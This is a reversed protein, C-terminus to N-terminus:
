LSHSRDALRAMVYSHSEIIEIIQEDTVTLLGFYDSEAATRGETGETGSDREM